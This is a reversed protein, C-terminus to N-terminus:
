IEYKDSLLLNKLKSIFEDDYDILTKLNYDSHARMYGKAITYKKTDLFGFIEEMQDDNLRPYKKYLFEKFSLYEKSYFKSYESELDYTSKILAIYLNGFLRGLYSKQEIKANEIFSDLSINKPFVILHIRDELFYIM